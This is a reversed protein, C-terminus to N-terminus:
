RSRDGRPPAPVRRVGVVPAAPFTRSNSAVGVSDWSISSSRCYCGPTEPSGHVHSAQEVDKTTTAALTFSRGSSAAMEASVRASSWTVTNRAVSSGAGAPRRCRGASASRRSALGRRPTAHPYPSDVAPGRAPRVTGVRTTSRKMAAVARPWPTRSPMRFRGPSRVGQGRRWFFFLRRGRFAPARLSM